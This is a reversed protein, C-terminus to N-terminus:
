RYNKKGSAHSIRNNRELVKGPAFRQELALYGTVRSIGQIDDSGCKPCVEDETTLYTNCEKCYRIEFNIGLYHIDTNKFTNLVISKITDEDPYNDLEIYSIHGGNCMSHYPAEIKLKQAISINKNVPVHFSNTYFGKDTVGKIEGFKKRDINTFRSSLGEAPTAYCSFNLKDEKTKKDCFDRIHRVIREALIQTVESESHDKGLLIICTEALGIFGIGWTGNKLVPEISDDSNLEESGVMLKQGCNFPLDKVKLEKLVDYRYMLNDYADKLRIDLLDFFKDVDKTLLAIRPLNISCPAINGRGICQAEGNVNSIVATRCGMIEMLLGKNYYPKYTSSDLNLFTPNMRKAAVKCALEFLYYYPDSEERNVGEKVRFIINPFICAEGNGMGKNYEELLLRCIMASDEKTQEDGVPIGINVSSFPVQSGARSHMTNLNYIIAQCAQRCEDELDSEILNDIFHNDESVETKVIKSLNYYKERLALRSKHVYKALINDIAGGNVGGFQDNQVSQIIICILAAASGIRKPERITGYGTNFGDTLLKEVPAHLCNVTLNFSDLDHYHLDGSEHLKAMRKPMNSLVAWKNSESAIRLLKSSFNNAVNANDRDTEIAIENITKMISSKKNRIRNRDKRYEDYSEAIEKYGLDKLSDIVICHINEVTLSDLNIVRKFIENIVKDKDYFLQGYAAGDNAAKDIARIIKHIDFDEKKGDLKIVHRNM